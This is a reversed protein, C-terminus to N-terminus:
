VVSRLLDRLDKANLFGSSRKQKLEQGDKFFLLVPPGVVEYAKMIDISQKTSSSVDVKLFTFRGLEAQVLENAFSEDLELCSVCWDAWFDVIVFGSAGAIARGLEDQTKISIFKNASKAKAPSSFNKFPAFIDNSGSMGGVFLSTFYIFLSLLLGRYFWNLSANFLGFRVVAFIGLVGWAILMFGGGIIRALLWAGVGLMIFGFAAKVGEMWVGPKPLLNKSSAGLILLPLGMGFGMVFLMFAGYFVDGSSAIFLLAGALPAAVCPSVVLTSAVGMFVIGLIGGKSNLNSLFNPMRIEYLGFMSLALLVFVFAMFGLVWPSQMLSQIGGGLLSVVVGFLAYSFAMSLVYVFSAFFGSGSGRAVIIGSLIPVMPLVCPTFSLSLGYAFFLLACLWFPLTDLVGAVDSDSKSSFISAFEDFFSPSQQNLRSGNISVLSAKFGNDKNKVVSYERLQPRYCIGSELCGQYSISLLSDNKKFLSFPLMFSFDHSIISYEGKNKGSPLQVDGTIDKGDIKVSFSNKYLYIKENAFIFDVDFRGDSQILNVNFAQQSDIPKAFIVCVFLMLFVLIKRM